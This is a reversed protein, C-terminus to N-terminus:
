GSFPFPIARPPPPFRRSLEASFAGDGIGGVVNRNDSIRAQRAGIWRSPDIARSCDSGVETKQQFAIGGRHSKARASFPNVPCLRISTSDSSILNHGEVRAQHFGFQHGEPWSGGRREFNERTSRRQQFIGPPLFPASSAVLFSLQRVSCVTAPAIGGMQRSRISGFRMKKARRTPVTQLSEALWLLCVGRFLLGAALRNGTKREGTEIEMIRPQFVIGAGRM